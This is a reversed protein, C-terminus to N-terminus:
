EVPEQPFTADPERHEVQMLESAFQATGTARIQFVHGQSKYRVLTVRNQFGHTHRADCDLTPTDVSRREPLSGRWRLPPSRKRLSFPCKHGQYRRSMPQGKPGPMRQGTSLREPALAWILEAARGARSYRIEFQQVWSRNARLPEKGLFFGGDVVGVFSCLNSIRRLTMGQYLVRSARIM